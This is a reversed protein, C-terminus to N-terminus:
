PSAFLCVYENTTRACVTAPQDPHDFRVLTLGCRYYSSTKARCPGNAPVM